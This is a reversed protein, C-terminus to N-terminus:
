YNICLEQIYKPFNVSYIIEFPLQYLMSLLIFIEAEVQEINNIYIPVWHFILM